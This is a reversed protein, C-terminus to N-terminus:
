NGNRVLDWEYRPPVTKIDLDVPLDKSIRYEWYDVLPDGTKQATHWVGRSEEQSLGRLSYREETKPQLIEELESFRELEAGSLERGKLQEIEIAVGTYFEELL